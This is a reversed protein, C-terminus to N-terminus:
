TLEEAIREVSWAEFIARFKLGPGARAFRRAILCERRAVKRNPHRLIQRLEPDDAYWEALELLLEADTPVYKARPTLYFM